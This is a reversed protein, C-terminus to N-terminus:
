IPAIGGAEELHSDFVPVERLNQRHMLGIPVCDLLSLRRGRAQSCRAEAIDHLVERM